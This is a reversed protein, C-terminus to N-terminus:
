NITSQPATDREVEVLCDYFTPGRGLDTLAQSIFRNCNLVLSRLRAKDHVIIPTKKANLNSLLFEQAKILLPLWPTVANKSVRMIM